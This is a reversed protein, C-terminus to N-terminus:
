PWRELLEDVARVVAKPLKAKEGLLGREQLRDRVARVLARRDEATAASTAVPRVLDALEVGVKCAEDSNAGLAGRLKMAAGLRGSRDWTEEETLGARKQFDRINRHAALLVLLMSDYAQPPFKAPWEPTPTWAPPAAGRPELDPDSSEDMIEEPGL